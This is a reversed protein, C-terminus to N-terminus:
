QKTVYDAFINLNGKLHVCLAYEEMQPIEEDSAYIRMLTHEMVSLYFSVQPILLVFALYFLTLLIM